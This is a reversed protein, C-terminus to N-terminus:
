KLAVGGDKKANDSIGAQGASVARRRDDIPDASQSNVFDACVHHRRGCRWVRQLVAIATGALIVASINTERRWLSCLANSLRGPM